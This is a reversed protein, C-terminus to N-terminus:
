KGNEIRWNVMAGNLRQYAVRSSHVPLYRIPSHSISIAFPL